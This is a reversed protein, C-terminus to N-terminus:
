AAIVIRDIFRILMSHVFQNPDKTRKPHTM